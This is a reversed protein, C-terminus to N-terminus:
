PKAAMNLLLQATIAQDPAGTRKVAAEAELLEALRKEIHKNSLRSLQRKMPDEAKWFVPPSLKKFAEGVSLGQEILNKCLQLRLLHRQTARLLMVCSAQEAFFHDLLSMARAPEGSCVSMVLDDLENGAANAIVAGVDELSIESKGKVYLALKDIESRMALRDPPLIEALARLVDRSASLGDQKLQAAITNQRAPSEEIYCPIAVALGSDKECLARIKSRSDLEGAEIIIVSDGSPPSKLFDGIPGHNSEIAQSLRVLKRGGGFPVSAAEDYLRASSNGLESGSFVTVAFPDSLDKILKRSMDRAREFVLGADPGFFLFVRVGPDPRELFPLIQGTKLKM